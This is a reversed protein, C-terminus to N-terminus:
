LRRLLSSSERAVNPCTKGHINPRHSSAAEPERQLRRINDTTQSKSSETASMYSNRDALRVGGKTGDKM